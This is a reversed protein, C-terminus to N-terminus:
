KKSDSPERPERLKWALLWTKGARKMKFENELREQMDNLHGAGYFIGLKTKGADIERKLIKMAKANRNEIITSGEDGEFISMGADMAMMQEAAVRRFKLTPNKSLGAALFSLNSPGKGKTQMAISHGMSKLLIRSVSENNKTWSEAFEEPTMDAHVFNSPTYDIQELQFSLDLGAMMGVQLAAIPNAIDREGGGKPIVTGEPAILEYLMSEYMEFRENLADYYEKEGVHVAGILDVYVVKGNENTLEFRTIATDMSWARGRHDRQIRMHESYEAGKAEAEVSQKKEQGVTMAPAFCTLLTVLAVSLLCKNSATSRNSFCFNM